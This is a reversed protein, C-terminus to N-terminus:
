VLYSIIADASSGASAYATITDGTELVVKQDGGVVALAGGPLVTADKVLFGSTGGNKNLKASVTIASATTNAFSLGILTHSAGAAVTDTVTSPAGSTGINPTAKSKFAM